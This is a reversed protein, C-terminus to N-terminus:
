PNDAALKKVAAVAEETTKNRIDLAFYHSKDFGVADFADRFMKSQMQPDCAAIYLKETEGGSL